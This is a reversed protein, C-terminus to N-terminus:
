VTFIDTGERYGTFQGDQEGSTAFGVLVDSWDALGGDVVSQWYALGDDDASRELGATYLMELIEETSQGAIRAQFEDSAVLYDAVTGISVGQELVSSWFALGSSDAERDFAVDYLSRVIYAQQDVAWLAQTGSAYAAQAEDSNTFAQAVDARSLLGNDLISNWFGAGDGDAARGLVRTYLLDVFAANSISAANPSGTQSQVYASFEDSALVQDILTSISGGHDLANKAHMMGGGDSSRGLLGLYVREIAALTSSNGFGLFGDALNLMDQGSIIVTNSGFSLRPGDDTIVVSLGLSSGDGGLVAQLSQGEGLVDLVNVTFAQSSTLSGGDTGLVSFSLTPASGHDLTVGDALRVRLGDLEFLSAHTGTLSLNVSDGVDPDSVTVRAVERGAAANESVSTTTVGQYAAVQPAENVNTVSIAVARATSSLTGDSATVTIDYVNDGGADGPTEFDPAAKFTVAGTTSSIDFLAADAGGVTWSLTTGADPDSGAAQYVTGSANEAFNATSASTVSPAENVGTVTIAVAEAASSLTGDSATVTIDYVNDGGADGPTEFDPAAKFTVAGTTSNIDFLAADAGGLTWSLTTGADPDSGAAQYVTGSANEAFSATSASTVSPAENVGTVTIAVAEAASSLTGDSATVTIDYVNDGGADGPAEFDPAAKFTVAGTTSNIDFLAADAGGLTWSLTTGADPDTGAAQYVTGSANEAFNATAASTVSPAENVNTIALNLTEGGNDSTDVYTILISLPASTLSEYDFAGSATVEFTNVDVSFTVGGVPAIAITAVAAPFNALDLDLFGVSVSSSVNEAVSGGSFWGLVVNPM